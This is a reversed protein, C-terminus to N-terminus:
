KKQSSQKNLVFYGTWWSRLVLRPKERQSHVADAFETQKVIVNGATKLREVMKRIGAPNKGEDSRVIAWIPLKALNRPNNNM